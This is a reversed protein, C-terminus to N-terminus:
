QIGSEGSTSEIMRRLRGKDSLQGIPRIVEECADLLRARDEPKWHVWYVRELMHLALISRLLPAAPVSRLADKLESIGRESDMETLWVSNLLVDIHEEQDVKSISLGLVKDRAEESLFQLASFLPNAVFVTEAAQLFKNLLSKINSRKEPDEVKLIFSEFEESSLFKEREAALDLTARHRTEADSALRMLKIINKSLRRKQDGSLNESAKGLLVVAVSWDRGSAYALQTEESLEAPIQSKLSVRREREGLKAEERQKLTRFHAGMDRMQDLMKSKEIKRDEASQLSEVQRELEVRFSQQRDKEQFIGRGGSSLLFVDNPKVKEIGNIHQELRSNVVEVFISKPALESYIDFTAMDFEDADFDFYKKATEPENVLIEALVYHEVFPLTFDLNNRERRLVGHNIFSELFLKSDVDFDNSRIFEATFDLADKYTLARKEINQEKSLLALFKKRTSRALKVRGRDEAVMYMLFGDVALQLFESRKNAELLSILSTEPIEAFYTPHALLGFADFIKYLRWAIAEAEQTSKRFNKQVFNAISHFSIDSIDFQDYEFPMSVLEVPLDHRCLIIITVDKMEKLCKSFYKLKAPGNTDFGAIIIVREVAESKRLAEWGETAKLANIISRRPPRIDEYELVFPIVKKERTDTRLFHDALVWPLGEDPYSRPVNVLLPLRQGLLEDADYREIEGDSQAMAVPRSPVLRPVPLVYGKPAARYEPSLERLNADIEEAAAEVASAIQDQETEAEPDSDPFLLPASNPRRKSLEELFFKNSLQCYLLDAANRAAYGRIEDKTASELKNKSKDAFDSIGRITVAPVENQRQQAAQFVGGSETEIALVKRGLERIEENMAKSASVISSVLDGGFIRPMPRVPDGKLYGIQEALNDPLNKPFRAEARREWDALQPRLAPHSRFFSIPQVISHPTKSASTDFSIEYGRGKDKAKSRSTVQIISHSYCVDGLRLDDSLAGAIGICCVLGFDYAQLASMVCQQAHEVGWDVSSTAAVRLGDVPPKLEYILPGGLVTLDGEERPPFFEYIVNLEELMPAFILIDIYQKLPIAEPISVTSQAIKSAQHLAQFSAPTTDEQTM